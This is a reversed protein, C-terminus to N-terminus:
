TLYLCDASQWRSQHREGVGMESDLVNKYVFVILLEQWLSEDMKEEDLASLCLNEAPTDFALTLFEDHSYEKGSDLSGGPIM